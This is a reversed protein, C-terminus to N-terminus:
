VRPATRPTATPIGLREVLETFRRDARLPDLRSDWKLHVVFSSREAIAKAIWEFASDNEGLGAYVLAVDYASVYGQRAAALLEQLLSRAEAAHGSRALAHALAARTFALDPDLEVADRLSEVAGDMDGLGTLAWGQVVQAWFSPM